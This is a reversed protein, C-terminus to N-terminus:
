QYTSGSVWLTFNTHKARKPNPTSRASTSALIQLILKIFTYFGTVTEITIDQLKQGM